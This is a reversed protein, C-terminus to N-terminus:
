DDDDPEEPTELKVKPLKGTKAWEALALSLLLAGSKTLGVSCHRNTPAFEKDCAVVEVWLRADGPEAADETNVELFDMVGSSCQVSVRSM